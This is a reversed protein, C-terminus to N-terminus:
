PLKPKPQRRLARLFKRHHILKIAMAREDRHPCHSECDAHGPGGREGYDYQGCATCRYVAQGCLGTLDHPCGRGGEGNSSWQHKGVKCPDSGLEFSAEHILAQLLTTM